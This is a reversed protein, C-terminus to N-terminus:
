PKLLVKGEYPYWSCIADVMFVEVGDRARWGIIHGPDWKARGCKNCLNPERYWGNGKPKYYANKKPNL